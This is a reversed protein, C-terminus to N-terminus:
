EPSACLSSPSRLSRMSFDSFFSSALPAWGDDADLPDAAEILESPLPADELEAAVAGFSQNAADERVFVWGKEYQSLTPISRPKLKLAWGTPSEAVLETERIASRLSCREIIGPEASAHRRSPAWDVDTTAPERRRSFGIVGQRRPNTISAAEVRGEATSRTSFWAMSRSRPAISVTPSTKAPCCRPWISDVGDTFDLTASSVWYATPKM